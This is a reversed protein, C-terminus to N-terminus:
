ADAINITYTVNLVDTSILSRSAAFSAAALLRDTGTGNGFATVSILFAGYATFTSDATYVAPSASNTISQSAVGVETWAPRVTNSVDGTGTVETSNTSVNAATDTALFTYNAKNIGVFWNTKQTASSLAVDLLYDLGENVVLNGDSQLDNIDDNIWHNFAGGVFVKSYPLYLEGGKETKEFKGALIEKTLSHM